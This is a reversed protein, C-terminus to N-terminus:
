KHVMIIRVASKTTGAEFPADLRYLQARFTQSVPKEAGPSDVTYLDMTQLDLAAFSYYANSVVPQWGPPHPVGWVTKL